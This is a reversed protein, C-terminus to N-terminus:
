KDFLKFRWFLAFINKWESEKEFYFSMKNTYIFSPFISFSHKIWKRWFINQFTSYFNIKNPIFPLHQLSYPVSFYQLFLLSYKSFFTSYFIVSIIHCSSFIQFFSLSFQIPILSTNREKRKGWFKQWAHMSDHDIVWKKKTCLMDSWVEWTMWAYMMCSM